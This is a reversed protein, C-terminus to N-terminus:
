TQNIFIEKISNTTDEDWENLPIVKQQIINNSLLAM